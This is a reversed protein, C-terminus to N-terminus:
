RKSISADHKKLKHELKIPHNSYISMLSPLDRLPNVYSFLGILCM